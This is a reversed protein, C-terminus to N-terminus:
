DEEDEESDVEPFPEDADTPQDESPIPLMEDLPDKHDFAKARREARSMKTIDFEVGGNGYTASFVRYRQKFKWKDTSAVARVLALKKSSLSHAPYYKKTVGYKGKIEINHKEAYATIANPWDQDEDRLSMANVFDGLFGLFLSLILPINPIISDNKLLDAQELINLTSLIALGVIQLTDSVRMSDDIMNWLTTDTSTFWWALSEMMYWLAFPNPKDSLFGKHFASLQNQVVEQLGYGTFDNYIFMGLSDQDRKQTQLDYKKILKRAKLSLAWAYGPFEAAPKLWTKRAEKLTESKKEQLSDVGEDEDDENEGKYELRFDWFPRPVCVFKIPCEPISSTTATPKNSTDSVKTSMTPRTHLPAANADTAAFSRKARPM